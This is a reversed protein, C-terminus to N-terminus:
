AKESQGLTDEFLTRWSVDSSLYAVDCRIRSFDAQSSDYVLGPPQRGAQL